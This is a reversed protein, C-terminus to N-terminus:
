KEGVQLKSSLDIGSEHLCGYTVGEYGRPTDMEEGRCGRHPEDSRKCRREGDAVLHEGVSGDENKILCM